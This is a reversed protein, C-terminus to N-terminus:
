QILNRDRLSSLSRDIEQLMWKNEIQRKQTELFLESEPFASMARLIKWKIFNDTTINYYEILSCYINPTYNYFCIFGIVDIAENIQQINNSYLVNILEPLAEQGIRILTRAAIDHPLPYNKKKFRTEPITKYQNDGIQGLLKVLSSVSHIGFSVLSNCIEIKSYLKNEVLLAEILYDIASLDSYNSLLRAGLTRDQPLKSKLLSIRFSFPSCLYQKETGETLFGRKELQEITSKV